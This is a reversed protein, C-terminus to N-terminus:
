QKKKNLFLDVKEIAGKIIENLRPDGYYGLAENRDRADTEYFNLDGAVDTLYQQLDEDELSLEDWIKNQFDSIYKARESAYTRTIKILLEKIDPIIGPM